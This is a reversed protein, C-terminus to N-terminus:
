SDTPFLTKAQPPANAQSLFAGSSHRAGLSSKTEASRRRNRPVWLENTRDVLFRESPFPPRFQFAIVDEISGELWREYEQSALIVPMRPNLEAVPPGSDTTM